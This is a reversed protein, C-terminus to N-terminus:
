LMSIFASDSRSYANGPPPAHSEYDVGVVVEPVRRAGPIRPHGVRECRDPPAESRLIQPREERRVADIARDEHLRDRAEALRALEEGGRRRVLEDRADDAPDVEGRRVQGLLEGREAGSRAARLEDPDTVLHVVFGVGLPEASGVHAPPHRGHSLDAERVIDEHARALQRGGERQHAVKRAHPEHDVM